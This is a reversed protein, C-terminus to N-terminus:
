KKITLQNEKAVHKVIEKYLKNTIRDVESDTLLHSGFRLRTIAEREKEFTDDKKADFKFGQKKLQKAISDALVGFAIGLQTAESM